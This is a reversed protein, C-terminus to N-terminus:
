PSCSLYSFCKMFLLISLYIVEYIITYIPTFSIKTFIIHKRVYILIIIEIETIM